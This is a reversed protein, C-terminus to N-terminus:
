SSSSSSSSLFFISFIPRFILDRVSLIFHTSCHNPSRPNGPSLLSLFLLSFFSVLINIKRAIGCHYKHMSCQSLLSYSLTLLVYWNGFLMTLTSKGSATGQLMADASESAHREGLTPGTMLRGKRLTPFSCPALNYLRSYMDRLVGHEGWRDVWFRTSEGNRIDRKLDCGFWTGVQDNEIGLLGLPHAEEGTLMGLLQFKEMEKHLLSPLRGKGDIMLPTRLAYRYSWTRNRSPALGCHIQTERITSDNTLISVRGLSLCAKLWRQCHHPFRLRGWLVRLFADYARQFDVKLVLILPWEECWRGSVLISDIWSMSKRDVKMWTFKRGIAQPEDLNMQNIFENFQQIMGNDTNTGVSRQEASSHINNFDSLVCWTGGGIDRKAQLHGQLNDKCWRLAHKRYTSSGVWCVM